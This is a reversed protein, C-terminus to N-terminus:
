LINFSLQLMLILFLKVLPRYSEQTLKDGGEEEADAELRQSSTVSGVLLTVLIADGAQAGLARSGGVCLWTM